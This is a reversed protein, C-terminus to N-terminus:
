SRIAMLLFWLLLSKGVEGEGVDEHTKERGYCPKSCVRDVERVYSSIGPALRYPQDKIRKHDVSFRIYRRSVVGRGGRGGDGERQNTNKGRRLDLGDGGTRAGM